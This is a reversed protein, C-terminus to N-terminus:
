NSLSGRYDGKDIEIHGTLSYNQREALEQFVDCRGASERWVQRTNENHAHQLVQKRQQLFTTLWFAEDVGKSPTGGAAEETRKLIAGLSDPDYGDGHQIITDYLAARALATNLGLQNAHKVSPTYYMEEVVRDQAQRFVPDSAATKWASPLDALNETNDSGNQALTELTPLFAALPNDPKIETYKKVVELLDATATTFGVRGATYGRGDGLNEIYDYHFATSGNEFLNTLEFARNKQSPTLLDITDAQVPHVPTLLASLLLFIGSATFFHQQIKATLLPLTPCVKKGFFLRISVLLRRMLHNLKTFNFKSFNFKTHM